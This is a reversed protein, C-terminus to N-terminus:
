HRRRPLTLPQTFRDSSFSYILREKVKNEVKLKIYIDLNLIVKLILDYHKPHYFKSEVLIIVLRQLLM